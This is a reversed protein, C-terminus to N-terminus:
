NDSAVILSLKYPITTTKNSSGQGFIAVVKLTTEENPALVKGSIDTTTLKIPRILNVLRSDSEYDPSAVVDIIKANMTGKNEITITYALEDLQNYLTFKMDLTHGDDDISYLGIPEQGGGKVSTGGNVETFVVDFIEKKSELTELKVSLFSFGTGLCIITLCLLAIILNRISVKKM